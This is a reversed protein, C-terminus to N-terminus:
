GQQVEGDSPVKGKLLQYVGRPWRKGTRVWIVNGYPVVYERGYQTVLKVVQRKTSRNQIAASRVKGDESKFAVVTGAEANEIYVSKPRPHREQKPEQKPKDKKVFATEKKVRKQKPLDVVKPRGVPREVAGIRYLFEDVVDQGREEVDVLAIKIQEALDNKVMKSYGSMGLVRAMARLQDRNAKDVLEPLSPRKTNFQENANATQM